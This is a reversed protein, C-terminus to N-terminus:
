PLYQSDSLKEDGYIVTGLLFVNSSLDTCGLQKLLNGVGDHCLLREQAANWHTPFDSGMVFSWSVSVAIPVLPQTHGEFAWGQHSTESLCSGQRQFHGCSELVDGGTKSCADLVQAQPPCQLYLGYFM